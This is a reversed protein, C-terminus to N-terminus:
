GGFGAALRARLREARRNWMPAVIVSGFFLFLLPFFMSAGVLEPLTAAYQAKIGLGTMVGAPIGYLLSAAAIRVLSLHAQKEPRLWLFPWWSWDKDSVENVAAELQDMSM